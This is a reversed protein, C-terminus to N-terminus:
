IAYVAFADGHDLLDRRAHAINAGSSVSSRDLPAPLGRCRYQGACWRPWMAASRRIWRMPTWTVDSITIVVQSPGVRAAQGPGVDPRHLSGLGVHRSSIAGGKSNRHCARGALDRAGRCPPKTASVLTSSSSWIRRSEQRSPRPTRASARLYPTCLRSTRSASVCGSGVGRLVGFRRDGCNSGNLFTISSHSRSSRSAGAFLTVGDLPDVASQEILVVRGPQRVGRHTVVEGLAFGLDADLLAPCRGLHEDALVMGRSLLGLDVEALQPHVQGPHQGLAVQEDVAHRIGALGDVLDVGAAALLREQFPVHLCEGPQAAGRGSVNAVVVQGRRHGLNEEAASELHFVGAPPQKARVVAALGEVALAADLASM